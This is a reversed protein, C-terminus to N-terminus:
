APVGKKDFRERARALSEIRREGYAISRRADEEASAFAEEPTAFFNGKYSTHDEGEVLVFENGVPLVRVQEPNHNMRNLRWVTTWKTM